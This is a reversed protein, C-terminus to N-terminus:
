NARSTLAFLIAGAFLVAAAIALAFPRQSFAYTVCNYFMFSSCACFLLPTVPYGPIRFPRSQVGERKRLVFVSLGTALFFTWVVPTTYLITDIFSGALLIITLSLVGQIVLAWVPTGRDQDWRGVRGFINHDRGLAYSVRAGTFILGNVAGLASICIIITVARTAADPLVRALTDVAVAHSKAMGPIGLAHLYAANILLYLATVSITGLILARAINREPRKVEASVYAMENWGGFTFMVLILALKMGGSGTSETEAAAALPPAALSAGIIFLLGIVKVVTLLNQTLKGARVGAINLGTLVIVAAVAYLIEVHEFPGYITRAYRGFIFAMLAVDGPRVIALQSWGFLFGAWPGYSRTLYVYDGGQQPHATALEAYCLAGTFSLLGGVLWVIFLTSSAEVSGAVTTPTEFIGVGVIIGVIICVSDFLSLQRKPQM